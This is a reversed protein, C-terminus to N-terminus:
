AHTKESESFVEQNEWPSTLKRVTYNTLLLGLVGMIPLPINVPQPDGSFPPILLIVAIQLAIIIVLRWAYQKREINQRRATNYAVWSIYVSLGYYPFYLLGYPSFVFYVPLTSHWIYQWLPALLVITTNDETIAQIMASFPSLLTLVLLFYGVRVTYRFSM